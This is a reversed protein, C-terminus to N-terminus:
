YKLMRFLLDSLWCQAFRFQPEFSLNRKGVSLDFIAAPKGLTFNPIFSIGNNTITVAGGFHGAPEPEDRAQSFSVITLSFIAFSLLAKKTIFPHVRIRM